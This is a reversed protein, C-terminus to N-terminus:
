QLRTNEILEEVTGPKLGRAELADLIAPLAEVASPTFDENEAADHLLIIAGPELDGEIRQVLRTPPIRRAGDFGRASWGIFTV